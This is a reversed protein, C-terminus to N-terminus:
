NKTYKRRRLVFKFISCPFINSLYINIYTFSCILVPFTEIKEEEEEKM